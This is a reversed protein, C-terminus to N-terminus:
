AKRMRATGKTGSKADYLAEDAIRILQEATLQSDFSWGIGISVSVGRTCGDGVDLPQELAALVREGAISAEAPSDVRALLVLFEDGGWRAVVDGARLTRQIREGVGRLVADGVNHGLSDNIQKLDDLDVFMVASPRGVTSSAELSSRLQSEFERRNSLGTLPDCTALRRLTEREARLQSELRRRTFLEGVFQALVTMMELASEDFADDSEFNDLAWFAVTEGDAIVPVSLTSKIEYARGAQEMWDIIEQTKDKVGISHIIEAVPTEIDRFLYAKDLTRQQLKHLDFGVAAIFRFHTSGPIALQISGAQAGPIVEAALELVEQYFDDDSDSRHALEGVKIVAAVFKRHIAIVSDLESDCTNPPQPYM